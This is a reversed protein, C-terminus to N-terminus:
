ADLFRVGEGLFFSLGEELFPGAEELCPVTEELFLEELFLGAAGLFPTAVLLV